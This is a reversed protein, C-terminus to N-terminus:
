KVLREGKYPFSDSRTPRFGMSYEEIATKKTRREKIPQAFNFQNRHEGFSPDARLPAAWVITCCEEIRDLWEALFSTSWVHNITALATCPIPPPPIKWITQDKKHRYRTVDSKTTWPSCWLLRCLEEPVTLRCTSGMDHLELSTNLRPFYLPNIPAVQPM